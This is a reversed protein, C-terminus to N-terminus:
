NSASRFGLTYILKPYLGGLKLTCRGEVVHYKLYARRAAIHTHICTNYNNIGFMSLIVSTRLESDRLASPCSVSSSSSHFFCHVLHVRLAVLLSLSLTLCGWAVSEFHRMEFCFCHVLHVRLAVLLSLSLTLCGCAVCLCCGVRQLDWVRM